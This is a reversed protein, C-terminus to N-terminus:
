FCQLAVCHDQNGNDCWARVDLQCMKDLSREPCARPGVQLVETSMDQVLWGHRVHPLHHKSTRLQEIHASTITLGPVELCNEDETGSRCDKQQPDIWGYEQLLAHVAPVLEPQQSKLEQM